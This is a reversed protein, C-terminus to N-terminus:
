NIGFRFGCLRKLSRELVVFKFNKKFGKSSVEIIWESFGKEAIAFDLDEENIQM